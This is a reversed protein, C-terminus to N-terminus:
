KLCILLATSLKLMEAVERSNRERGSEREAFKVGSASLFNKAEESHIAFNIGYGRMAGDRALGSTMGLTAIGVIRGSEDVVPGGSNGSSISASMQLFGYKRKDMGSVIGDTIKIEGGLDEILPYGGVYVRQGLATLTKVFPLFAVTPKMTKVIALDSTGSLSTGSAKAFMGNYRVIVSRCQNIVHRNTLFTGDGTVSVASGFALGNTNTTIEVRPDYAPWKEQSIRQSIAMTSPDGANAARTKPKQTQSAKYKESLVADFYKSKSNSYISHLLAAAENDGLDAAQQLLSLGKPVNRNLKRGQIYLFGLAKLADSNGGNSLATLNGLGKHPENELQHWAIKVPGDLHDVNITFTEKGGGGCGVLAAVLSLVIMSTIQKM